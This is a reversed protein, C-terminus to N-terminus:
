TAFGCTGNPRFKGGGACRIQHIAGGKDGVAESERGHRRHLVGRKQRAAHLVAVQRRDVARRQQRFVAGAVLLAFVPQARQDVGLEGRELRFTVGSLAEHGNPYRKHVNEFLIM